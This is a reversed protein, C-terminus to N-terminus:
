LLLNRFCLLYNIKRAQPNPLSDIKLYKSLLFLLNNYPATLTIPCTIYDFKPLETSKERNQIEKGNGLKIQEKNISYELFWTTKLSQSFFPCAFRNASQTRTHINLLMLIALSLTNRPFSVRLPCLKWKTNMIHGYGPSIIVSAKQRGETEFRCHCPKGRAAM